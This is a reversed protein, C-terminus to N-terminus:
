IDEIPIVILLMYCIYLFLLVLITTQLRLIPYRVSGAFGWLIALILIIGAFITRLWKSSESRLTKKPGLLKCCLQPFLFMIWLISICASTTIVTASFFEMNTQIFFITTFYSLIGTLIIAFILSLCRVHQNNNIQYKIM